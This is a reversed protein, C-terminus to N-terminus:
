LRQGAEHNRDTAIASALDIAEALTPRGGMISDVDEVQYFTVGAPTVRERVAFAHGAITFVWHASEDRGAEARLRAEDTADADITAADVAVLYVSWNGAGHGTAIDRAEYGGARTVRDADMAEMDADANVQAAVDHRAAIAQFMAVAEARAAVTFEHTVNDGAENGYEVRYATAPSIPAQATHATRNM